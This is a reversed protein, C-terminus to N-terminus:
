HRAVFGAGRGSEEVLEDRLSRREKAKTEETADEGFREFDILKVDENGILFNYRNVDGHSFGLKHFEKLAAECRDLDEISAHRRGEMKELLFGMVRDEEHTHGLFRPAINSGQQHLLQYAKTEQEIRPVEWEFRAIKAIMTTTPLDKTAATPTSVVAEFATATLREKKVLYLVDVSVAHWVNRVGRLNKRSLSTALEGSTVDRCIHAVNWSNDDYPLSPLDALPFSLIDRDFTAAAM